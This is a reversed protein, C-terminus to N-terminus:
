DRNTKRGDNQDGHGHPHEQRDVWARAQDINELISQWVKLGFDKWYETGDRGVSTLVGFMKKGQYTTERTPEPV